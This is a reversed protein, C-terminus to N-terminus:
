RVEPRPLLLISLTLWIYLRIELANRLHDHIKGIIEPDKTYESHWMSFGVPDYDLDYSSYVRVVRQLKKPKTTDIKRKPWDEARIMLRRVYYINIIIGVVVGLVFYGAQTM